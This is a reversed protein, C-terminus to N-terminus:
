SAISGTSASPPRRTCSRDWVRVEGQQAQVCLDMCRRYGGTVVPVVCGAPHVYAAACAAELDGHIHMRGDGVPGDCLLVGRGRKCDKYQQVWADLRHKGKATM